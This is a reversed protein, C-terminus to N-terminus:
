VNFDPEGAPTDPVPVFCEVAQMPTRLSPQITQLSESRRGAHAFRLSFAPQVSMLIWKRFFFHIGPLPHVDVAAHPSVMRQLVTKFHHGVTEAVGPPNIVVFLSLQEDRNTHDGVQPMHDWATDIVPLSTLVEIRVRVVIYFR